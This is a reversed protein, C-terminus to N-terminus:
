AGELARGVRGFAPILLMLIALCVFAFPLSTAQAVFGIAAPGVLLGAYGITVMAAVALAPPMADQRGAASFLIPVRTAAGLGILSFGATASWGPALLLCAFGLTTLAAGALISRMGGLAAIIQDGALRGVVMAISFLAYGVGGLPPPLGRERILYLGGWDLMAGETLFAAFAMLGFVVVTGHPLAFM